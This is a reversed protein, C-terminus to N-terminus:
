MFVIEVRNMERLAMIKTWKNDSLCKFFYDYKHFHLVRKILVEHKLVNFDASNKLYTFTIQKKNRM